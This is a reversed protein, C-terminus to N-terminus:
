ELVLVRRERIAALIHRLTRQEIRERLVWAARAIPDAYFTAAMGIREDYHEADRALSDLLLGREIRTLTGTM